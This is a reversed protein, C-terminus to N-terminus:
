ATFRRLQSHSVQIAFGGARDLGEGNEVYAKILHEPNDAFYVLTREEISRTPILYSNRLKSNCSSYSIVKDPIRPIDLCPLSCVCRSSLTKTSSDPNSYPGVTVGTVVECVGGNLDLLMRLNDAKSTPKELLEQRVAPLVSYDVQTTSPQAHTLVVTDAVTETPEAILPLCSSM